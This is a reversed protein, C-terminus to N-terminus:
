CFLAGVLLCTLLGKCHVSTGTVSYMFIRGKGGLNCKSTLTQILFYFQLEILLVPSFSHHWVCADFRFSLSVCSPVDLHYYSYELVTNVPPWLLCLFPPFGVM